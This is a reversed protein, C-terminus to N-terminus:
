GKCDNVHGHVDHVDVYYDINADRADYGDRGDVYYIVLEHHFITFDLGWVFLWHKLASLHHHYKMITACDYQFFISLIIILADGNENANM